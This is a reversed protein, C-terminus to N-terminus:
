DSVDAILPNERRVIEDAKDEWAAWYAAVPRVFSALPRKEGLFGAAIPFHRQRARALATNIGGRKPKAV